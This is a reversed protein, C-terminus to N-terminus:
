RRRCPPFPAWEARTFRFGFGWRCCRPFRTVRVSEVRHEERASSHVRVSRSHGTRLLRFLPALAHHAHSAHRHPSVFHSLAGGISSPTGLGFAAARPWATWERALIYAQRDARVCLVLWLPPSWHTRSRYTHSFLLAQRAFLAPAKMDTGCRMVSHQVSNEGQAIM